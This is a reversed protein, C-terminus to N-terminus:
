EGSSKEGNLLTGNEYGQESIINGGEDWITVTGDPKGGSFPTVRFKKGSPYWETAEGEAKNDKLIVEYFKKGNPHWRTLPGHSQGKWYTVQMKRSGNPHYRNAKGTFPKEDNSQLYAVGTDRLRGEDIATFDVELLDKQSGFELPNPPPEEDVAQVATLGAIASTEEVLQRIEAMSRPLPPFEMTIGLEDGIQKMDSRVALVQNHLDILMQDQKSNDEEPGLNQFFAIPNARKIIYVAGGGIKGVIKQPKIQATNEVVKCGALATVAAILM